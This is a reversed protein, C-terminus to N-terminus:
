LNKHICISNEINKYPGFNPIVTYGNKTYLAIAEPQTKVTELIASRYNNEIAWKELGQLIITAAGKGRFTPQVFM